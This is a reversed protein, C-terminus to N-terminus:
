ESHLGRSCLGTPRPSNQFANKGSDSTTNNLRMIPQSFRVSNQVNVCAVFCPLRSLYIESSKSHPRMLSGGGLASVSCHPTNEVLQHYTVVNPGLHRLSSLSYWGIFTKESSRGRLVNSNSWTSCRPKNLVGFRPLDM